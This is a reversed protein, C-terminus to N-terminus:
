AAIREEALMRMFHYHDPRHELYLLRLWHNEPLNFISWMGYDERLEEGPAIDRLAVCCEEELPMWDLSGINAIGQDGHNLFQMGDKFWLFKGTPQHLYGSLLALSLTDEDYARLEEPGCLIMSHDFRWVRTGAPIATKAYVGMGHTSSQAIDVPVEWSM